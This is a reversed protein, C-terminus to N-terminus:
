VWGSRFKGMLEDCLGVYSQGNEVCKCCVSVKVFGINSMLNRLCAFLNGINGDLLVGTTNSMLKYFPATSGFKQQHFNVFCEIVKVNLLWNQSVIIWLIGELTLAYQYQWHAVRCVLGSRDAPLVSLTNIITSHM